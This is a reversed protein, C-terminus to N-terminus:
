YLLSVGGYIGFGPTGYGNIEEYETNTLNDLRLNATLADTLRRNAALHVLAYQPLVINNTDLRDGVYLFQLAVNSGSDPWMQMVTMSVKDRPRRLLATGTDLNLTDDLTYATNVTLTETLYVLLSLEVGNSRARGVNELAFTNFDFVILNTFDNRYYTADAVIVDEWISQRLGVDWGKNFEPRLDPNGFQFLNEALSPQRFGTGISGHLGSGTFPINYLSTVRYTQARGARSADDWRAGATANFNGWKVADQLYAGAINQSVQPNFTSSADENLYDAGATLTNSETLQFSALYDVSRTQGHFVPPSFPGSDTDRRDYDVLNLGVRLFVVDDLMWNSLQVRNAFSKNINKRILNDVPLGTFFDFDDIAASSDIYRFVYDINWADGVNYGVRGSGTGITFPDHETNGLRASASSIGGTNFYSGTVSYYKVEDGGSINLSGQGTKFSGGYGGARVALPGEGRKTIINIVGGMADSGYLTSQPGRLVEIRQVNDVTLSSFDFARAAGSPDNLPIGDLLVKTQQSNAGRMFVSSLGGPGGQRVVDTGLRGRLVEAVTTQGGRPSIADIEEETIVTVSSGTESLPTPLRNPSIVTDGPLPEAPFGGPRAVVQTEALEPVNGAPIPAPEVIPPQTAVAAPEQAVADRQWGAACAVVAAFALGRGGIGVLLRQTRSRRACWSRMLDMAAGM